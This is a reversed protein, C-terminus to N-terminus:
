LCTGVYVCVIELHEVIVLCKHDEEWDSDVGFVHFSSDLLDDFDFVDFLGDSVDKARKERVELVFCYEELSCGEVECYWGDVEVFGEVGDVAEGVKDDASIILFM